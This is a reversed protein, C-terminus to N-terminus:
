VTIVMIAASYRPSLGSCTCNSSPSVCNGRAGDCPPEFVVALTPEATCPAARATPALSNDSAFRRSSAASPTAAAATSISSPRSCSVLSGERKTRTESTM